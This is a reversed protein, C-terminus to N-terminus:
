GEGTRAGCGTVWAAGRKARSGAAVRAGRPGERGPKSGGAKRADGTQARGAAGMGKAARL